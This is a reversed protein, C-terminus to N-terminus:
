RAHGYRRLVLGVAISAVSWALSQPLYRRRWERFSVEYRPGAWSRRVLYTRGPDRHSAMAMWATATLVIGLGVVGVVVFIM